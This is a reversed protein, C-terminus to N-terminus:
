ASQDVVVFEGEEDEAFLAPLAYVGLGMVIEMAKEDKELELVTIDGAAIEKQYEEVAQECTPCAGGALILYLKKVKVERPTEDEDPSIHGYYRGKVRIELEERIQKRLADAAM